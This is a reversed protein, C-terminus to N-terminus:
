RSGDVVHVVTSVANTDEDPRSKHQTVAATIAVTTGAPLIFMRMDDMEAGPLFEYLGGTGTMLDATALITGSDEDIVANAGKDPTVQRVRLEYTDGAKSSLQFTVPRPNKAHVHVVVIRLDDRYPLVSADITLNLQWDRSGGLGFIWLAWAGAVIIALCSLGKLSLDAIETARKLNM